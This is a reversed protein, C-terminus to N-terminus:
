QKEAKSKKKPVRRRNVGDFFYLTAALYEEYLTPEDHAFQENAVIGHFARMARRTCWENEALMEIFTSKLQANIVASQNITDLTWKLHVHIQKEDLAAGLRLASVKEAMEKYRLDVLIPRSSYLFFFNGPVVGDRVSEILPVLKESLATGLKRGVFDEQFIRIVRYGNLIACTNKYDDYEQRQIFSIETKHFRPNREFHQLGDLEIIIRWREFVIDM